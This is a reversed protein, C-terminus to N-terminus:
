QATTGQFEPLDAEPLDAVPLDADPLDADPLDADPLDAARLPCLYISTQVLLKKYCVYIFLPGRPILRDSTDAPPLPGGPLPGGPIGGRQSSSVNLDHFVSQEKVRMLRDIYRLPFQWM